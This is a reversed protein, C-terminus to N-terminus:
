WGYYYIPHHYVVVSNGQLVLQIQPPTYIINVNPLAGAPERILIAPSTTSKDTAEVM